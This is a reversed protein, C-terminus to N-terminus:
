NANNEEKYKTILEDPNVEEFQSWESNFNKIIFTKNVNPKLINDYESETLEKILLPFLVVQNSVSPYFEKLVNQAHETDFKQMPSDIFVPFDIESECVLSKLLASAYMQREGMSLESRDIINDRADYLNIDIDDGAQNITVRVSHIM